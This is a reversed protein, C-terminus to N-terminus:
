TESRLFSEIKAQVADKEADNNEGQINDVTLKSLISMCDSWASFFGRDFSEHLPNRVHRRFERRYGELTKHNHFDLNALLTYESGRSRRAILMGRLARYYGRNWETKHMKGKIKELERKAEAFRKDLLLQFFRTVLASPMPM